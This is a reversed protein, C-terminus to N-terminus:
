PPFGGPLSSSLYNKNQPPMFNPLVTQQPATPFVPTGLWAASKRSIVGLCFLSLVLQNIHDM